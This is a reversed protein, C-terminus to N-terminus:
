QTQPSPKTTVHAPDADMAPPEDGEVSVAVGIRQDRQVRRADLHVARRDGDTPETSTVLSRPWVQHRLVANLEAGLLVVRSVLFFWSLLAIVVAFTGYTDSAGKIYRNVILTGVAQLMVIGAGAVLAGPLLERFPNRGSIFLRFTVLLM